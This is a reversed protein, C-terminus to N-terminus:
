YVVLLFVHMLCYVIWMYKQIVCSNNTIYAGYDGKWFVYYVPCLIEARMIVKYISVFDM